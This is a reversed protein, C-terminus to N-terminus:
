KQTKQKKVEIMPRESTISQSDSPTREEKRPLNNDGNGGGTGNTIGAADNNTTASAISNQATAGVPVRPRFHDRFSYFITDFRIRQTQTLIKEKSSDKKALEDSSSNTKWYYGSSPHYAAKQSAEDFAKGFHHVATLLRHSIVSAADPAQYIHGPALIYYEQLPRPENLSDRYQKRIIFLVPNQKHIVIYEIGSANMMAEATLNNMYFRENLSSRDYFPNGMQCFYPLATEESLATNTQQFWSLDSWSLNLLSEKSLDM